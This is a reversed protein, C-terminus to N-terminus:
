ASKGTGVMRRWDQPGPKRSGRQGCGGRRQGQGASADLVIVRVGHDRCFDVVQGLMKEDESSLPPSHLAALM